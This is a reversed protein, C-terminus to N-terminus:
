IPLTPSSRTSTRSSRSIRTITRRASLGHKRRRGRSHEHDQVALRARARVARSSRLSLGRGARRRRRRARGRAGEVAARGQVEALTALNVSQLGVAPVDLKVIEIGPVARLLQEAAEMVGAIGPHRHLAVTMEVRNKLFPRLEDLKGHLFPMFPTMDFPKEGTAREIPRCCPRASSCSAARAGRWCRGPRRSRCSTSPTTPSVGSRTSTAPAFSARHRLLPDARGDGSLRHRDHGHHRPVAARHAADEARQLRHLVGRGATRHAAAAKSPKQGLRILSEESLQLRSLM